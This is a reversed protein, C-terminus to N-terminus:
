ISTELSVSSSWCFLRLLYTVTKQKKKLELLHLSPVSCVVIWPYGVYLSICVYMTSMNCTGCNTLAFINIPFRRLTILASNKEPLITWYQFIHSYIRFGKMMNVSFGLWKYPVYFWNAMLRKYVFSRTLLIHCLVNLIILSLNFSILSKFCDFQSQLRFALSLNRDNHLFWPFVTDM